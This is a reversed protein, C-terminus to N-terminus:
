QPNLMPRRVTGETTRSRDRAEFNPYFLDVSAGEELRLWGIDKGTVVEPVVEAM